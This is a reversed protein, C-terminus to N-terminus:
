RGGMTNTLFANDTEKATTIASFGAQDCMEYRRIKVRSIERTLALSRSPFLERLTLQTYNKSRLFFLPKSPQRQQQQVLANM